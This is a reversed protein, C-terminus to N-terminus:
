KKSLRKVTKPHKVSKSAKMPPTPKKNNRNYLGADGSMTTGSVKTRTSKKVHRKETRLKSKATDYERMIQELSRIKREFGARNMPISTSEIAIRNMHKSELIYKAGFYLYKDFNILGFKNRVVAQQTVPKKGLKKSLWEILLGSQRYVYAFTYAFSPTNTFVQIDFGSITLERNHANEPDFFRFVVDYTNDRETESPIILHFYYENKLPVRYITMKIDKGKRRDLSLYKENLSAILAARNPISSDGKGMPNELYERITM